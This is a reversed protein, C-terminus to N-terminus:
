QVKTSRPACALKKKIVQPASPAEMSPKPTECIISTAGSPLVFVGSVYSKLGAERPSATIISRSTETAKEAETVRLRYAYSYSQAILNASRELEELSNAFRKNKRFFEEQAQNMAKLYKEAENQKSEATQDRPQLM